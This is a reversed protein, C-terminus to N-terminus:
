PRKKLRVKMERVGAECTRLLELEAPNDKLLGAADLERLPQRGERLAELGATSHKLTGEILALTILATVPDRRFRPQGLTPRLSRGSSSCGPNEKMLNALEIATHRLAQVAV